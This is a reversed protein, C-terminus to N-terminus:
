FPDAVAVEVVAVGARGCLAQPPCQRDVLADTGGVGLADLFGELPVRRCRGGGLELWRGRPSPWQACVGDCGLFSATGPRSPDDAPARPSDRDDRARADAQAVALRAIEHRFRLRGGDGALLGSSLVEDVVAPPCATVSELLDLEVRAGTLAAVDLVERSGGGLRGARALM